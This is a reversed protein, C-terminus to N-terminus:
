LETQSNTLFVDTNEVMTQIDEELWATQVLWFSKTVLDLLADDPRSKSMISVEDSETWRDPARFIHSLEHQILNDAYSQPLRLEIATDGTNLSGRVAIALNQNSFVVGLNTMTRNSLILLIDAGANSKQTGVGPNWISNNLRYKDGVDLIAISKMTEMNTSEFRMEFDVLAVQVFTLNMSSRFRSNVQDLYYAPDRFKLGDDSLGEWHDNAIVTLIAIKQTPISIQLSVNEHSTINFLITLNHKDEFLGIPFYGTSDNYIRTEDKVTMNVTSNILGSINYNIRTYGITEIETTLSVLANEESSVTTFNNQIITVSGNIETQVVWDLNTAQEHKEPLYGFLTHNMSKTINNVEHVQTYILTYSTLTYNKNTLAVFGNIDFGPEIELDLLHTGPDFLSNIMIHQDATRNMDLDKVSVSIHNLRAKSDGIIVELNFPINDGKFFDHQTISINALVNGQYVSTTENYTLISNGLDASKPKNSILIATVSGSIILIASIGIAVLNRRSINFSM